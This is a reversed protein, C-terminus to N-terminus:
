LRGPSRSAGPQPKGCRAAAKAPTFHWRAKAGRKEERLPGARGTAAGHCHGPGKKQRGLHASCSRTLNGAALASRHREVAEVDPILRATHRSYRTALRFSFILGAVILFRRPSWQPPLGHTSDQQCSRCSHHVHRDLRCSASMHRFASRKEVGLRQILRVALRRGFSHLWMLAAAPSLM